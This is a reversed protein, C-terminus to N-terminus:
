VSKRPQETKKVQNRQKENQVRLFLRANQIGIGAFCLYRRFIKSVWVFSSIPNKGHIGALYLLHPPSRYCSLFTKLWLRVHSCSSCVIVEFLNQKGKRKEKKLQLIFSSSIVVEEDSSTFGDLTGKKNVMQAVGVVGGQRDLIPLCLISHTVYGTRKDVESLFREDQSTGDIRPLNLSSLSVVAHM